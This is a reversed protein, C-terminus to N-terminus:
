YAFRPFCFYRKIKEVHLSSLFICFSYWWWWWLTDNFQIMFSVFVYWPILFSLHMLITKTLSACLLSSRKWVFLWFSSRQYTFNFQTITDMEVSTCLVAKQVRSQKGWNIEIVGIKMAVLCFNWFIVPFYISNIILYGPQSAVRRDAPNLSCTFIYYEVERAPCILKIIKEVCLLCFNSSFASQSWNSFRKM